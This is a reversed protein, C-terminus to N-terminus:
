RASVTTGQAEAPALLACVGIAVSVGLVVTLAVTGPRRGIGRWHPRFMSVDLDEDPEADAPDTSAMDLEFPEVRITAEDDGDWDFLVVGPRTMEDERIGYRPLSRTPVEPANM